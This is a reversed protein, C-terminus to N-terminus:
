DKPKTKTEFYFTIPEDDDREIFVSLEDDARIRQKNQLAIFGRLRLNRCVIENYKGAISVKGYGAMGLLQVDAYSRFAGFHKQLEAIFDENSTADFSFQYAIVQNPYDQQNTSPSHLVRSRERQEEREKRVRDRFILRRRPDNKAPYTKAFAELDSVLFYRLNMQGGRPVTKCPIKNRTALTRFWALGHGLYAAAENISLYQDGEPPTPTNATDYGRPM